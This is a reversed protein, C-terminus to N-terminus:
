RDDNEAASGDGSDGKMVEDLRFSTHNIEIMSRVDRKIGKMGRFQKGWMVKKRNAGNM